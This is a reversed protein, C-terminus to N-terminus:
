DIKKMVKVLATLVASFNRDVIEKARNDSMGCECYISYHNSAGFLRLTLPKEARDFNGENPGYDDQNLPVNWRPPNPVLVERVEFGGNKSVFVALNSEDVNNEAGIRM